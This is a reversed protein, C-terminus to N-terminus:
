QNVRTKDKLNSIAAHHDEHATYFEEEIHMLRNNKVGRLSQKIYKLGRSNRM